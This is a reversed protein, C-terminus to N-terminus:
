LINILEFYQRESVPAKICNWYEKFNREFNFDTKEFTFIRKVKKLM